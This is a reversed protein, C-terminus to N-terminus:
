SSTVLASLDPGNLTHQRTIAKTTAYQLAAEHLVACPSHYTHTASFHALRVQVSSLHEQM